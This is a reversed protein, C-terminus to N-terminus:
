VLWYKERGLVKEFADWSRGARNATVQDKNDIKDVLVHYRSSEYKVVKKGVAESCVRQVRVKSKERLGLVRITQDAAYLSSWRRLSLREVGRVRTLALVHDAIPVYLYNALSVDCETIVLDRLDPCGIIIRKLCETFVRNRRDIKSERYRGTTDSKPPGNSALSVAAKRIRRLNDSGVQGLWRKFNLVLPTNDFHFRNWGYLVSAAEAHIQRSVGIIAPHLQMSAKDEQLIKPVLLATPLVHWSWEGGPNGCLLLTYVLHRIELPITEFTSM